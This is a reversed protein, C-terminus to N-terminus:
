CANDIDGYVTDTYVFNYLSYTCDTTNTLVQDVTRRLTVVHDILASPSTLM